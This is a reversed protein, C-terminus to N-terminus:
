FSFCFRFQRIALIANFLEANAVKVRQFALPKRCLPLGHLRTKDIGRSPCDCLRHGPINKSSFERSDPIRNRDVHPRYKQRGGVPPPSSGTRGDYREGPQSLHLSYLLDSFPWSESGSAIQPAPALVLSQLFLLPPTIASRFLM